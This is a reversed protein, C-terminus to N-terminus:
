EATGDHDPYANALLARLTDAVTVGRRFVEMKIRGRLEADILTVRLGQKAWEGNLHLALTTKSADGKQTLLAVIM